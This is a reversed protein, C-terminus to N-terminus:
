FNQDPRMWSSNKVGYLTQIDFIKIVPRILPGLTPPQHACATCWAQGLHLGGYMVEWGTVHCRGRARESPQSQSQALEVSLTYPKSVSTVKTIHKIWRLPSCYMNTARQHFLLCYTKWSVPATNPWVSTVSPLCTLVNEFDHSLKGSIDRVSWSVLMTSARPLGSSSSRPRCGGRSSTKLRWASSTIWSWRVRTWSVSESLVDWCPM